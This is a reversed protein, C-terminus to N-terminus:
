KFTELYGDIFDRIETAKRHGIDICDWDGYRSRYGFIYKIAAITRRLINKHSSLHIEVWMERALYEPEDPDYAMLMQHEVNGCNCIIMKERM